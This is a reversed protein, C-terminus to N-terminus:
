DLCQYTDMLFHSISDVILEWVEVSEDNVNLFPYTIEDCVKYHTRNIKLAPILTLDHLYLPGM